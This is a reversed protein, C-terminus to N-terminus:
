AISMQAIFLGEAEAVLKDGAMARAWMTVKRGDRGHPGATYDIRQGIPTLAHYRVTLTGTFGAMGTIMQAVGLLEDFAAAVYGGHVGGPPGEYATSFVATAHTVGNDDDFDYSLPMSLANSRGSVPSREVLTGFPPGQASLSGDVRRDPLADLRQRLERAASELAALEEEDIATVDLGVLRDIIGRVEDAIRHRAAFPPDATNDPPFWLRRVNTESPMALLM